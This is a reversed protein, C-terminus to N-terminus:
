VPQAVPMEPLIRCLPHVAAETSHRPAAALMAAVHERLAALPQAGSLLRPQADGDTMRLLMTPVGGIGLREAELRDAQVGYTYDGNRLAFKLRVANLGLARGIDTLEDISGIDRDHEFFAQFLAQHMKTGLGHEQAFRQTEFALRSRPQVSPLYLEMGREKAMPYVHHKWAHRLYEGRPELTPVPEPRLEFARWRIELDDGFEARLADFVPFELYCFPCVYDSWVDLTIRPM